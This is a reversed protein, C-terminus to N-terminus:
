RTSEPSMGRRGILRDLRDHADDARQETRAHAKEISELKVTTREEIRALQVRVASMAGWYSAGAGCVLGVVGFIFHVLEITLNM